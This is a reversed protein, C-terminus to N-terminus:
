FPVSEEMELEEKEEKWDKLVGEQYFTTPNGCRPCFRANSAPKYGCSEKEVYPQGWDNYGIVETCEQILYMGCIKCFIDGPEIDQNECRPCIQAVGNEDLPVGKKYQMEGDGWILKDNGCFPCYHADKSVFYAGCTYCHKTNIFDDFNLRILIEEPSVIGMSKWKKYYKYRYISAEKSLKCVKAIDQSSKIKLGSLIIPPALIQGAFFDAEEELIRYNEESLGGRTLITQTYDKLHNLVIHGIEHMITWRIRGISRIEDNYVIKYEDTIGCYIAAGDKSKIINMMLYEVSVGIDKAVISAKEIPWGQKRAISFPDVPLKCINQSLMFKRAISAVWDFRPENLQTNSHM